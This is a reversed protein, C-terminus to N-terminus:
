TLRVALRAVVADGVPVAPRAVGRGLFFVAELLDHVAAGRHQAEAAHDGGGRELADAEWVESAGMGPLASPPAVLGLGGEESRSSPLVCPLPGLQTPMSTGGFACAVARAGHVVRNLESLVDWHDAMPTNRQATHGGQSHARQDITDGKLAPPHTTGGSWVL